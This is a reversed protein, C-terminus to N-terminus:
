RFGLVEREEITLKALARERIKERTNYEFDEVSNFITLTKKYVSRYASNKGGAVTDALSETAFCGVLTTTRDYGEEVTWYEITKM